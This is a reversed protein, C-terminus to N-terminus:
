QDDKSTEKLLTAVGNRISHKAGCDCQHVLDIGWHAYVYWPFAHPTRCKECTFGKPLPKEKRKRTM